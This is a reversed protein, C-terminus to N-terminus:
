INPFNPTIAFLGTAKTLCFIFFLQLDLVVKWFEFYESKGVLGTAPTNVFHISYGAFQTVSSHTSNIASPCIHSCVLM